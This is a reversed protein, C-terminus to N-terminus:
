FNTCVEGFDGFMPHCTLLTGDDDTEQWTKQQPAPARRDARDQVVRDVVWGRAEMCANARPFDGNSVKGNVAGCARIDARKAAMSRAHGNPMRADRYIDTEAHATAAASVAFVAILATSIVSRRLTCPIMMIM